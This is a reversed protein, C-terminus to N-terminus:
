WGFREACIPGIGRAISEADTLTRACVSCKGFKKGFAIAANLPDRSVEAIRKEQEPTCNFAAFLRGNIVKGLYAEGEKVYIAGANKGTVPAPSFTFNELRLKPRQIGAAKAKNFAQEVPDLSVAPAAAHREAQVQRKALIRQVALTQGTTLGGWRRLSELLSQAFDFSLSNDILWDFEAPHRSVWDSMKPSTYKSVAALRDARDQTIAIANTQM